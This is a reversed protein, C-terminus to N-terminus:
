EGETLTTKLNDQCVNSIESMLQEKQGDTLEHKNSINLLEEQLWATRTEGERKTEQLRNFAEEYAELYTNTESLTKQGKESLGMEAMKVAILQDIDASPNEEITKLISTLIEDFSNM